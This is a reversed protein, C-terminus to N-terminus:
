AQNTVLNRLNRTKLNLQDVFLKGTASLVRLHAFFQSIYLSAFLIAASVVGLDLDETVVVKRRPLDRINRAQNRAEAV